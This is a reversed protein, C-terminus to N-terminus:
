TLKNIWPEYQWIEEQNKKKGRELAYFINFVKM